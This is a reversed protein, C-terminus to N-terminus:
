MDVAALKSKLIRALTERDMEAPRKVAEEFKEVRQKKELFNAIDHAIRCADELIGHLNFLEESSLSDREYRRLVDILREYETIWDAFNNEMRIYSEADGVIWLRVSKLDAWSVPEGSELRKIVENIEKKTLEQLKERVVSKCDSLVGAAQAFAEASMKEQANKLDASVNKLFSM